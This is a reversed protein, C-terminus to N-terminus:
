ASVARRGVVVVPGLSLMLNLLPANRADGLWGFQLARAAGEVMQNGVCWALPSRSPFAPWRTACCVGAAFEGSRLPM